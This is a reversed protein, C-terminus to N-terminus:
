KRKPISRKEGPASTAQEVVPEELRNFLHERGKVIPDSSSVIERVTITRRGVFFTERAQLIAM